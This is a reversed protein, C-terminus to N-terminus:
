ASGIRGSVAEFPGRYYSFMDDLCCFKEVKELVDKGSKFKVQSTNREVPHFEGFNLLIFLSSLFTRFFAKKFM